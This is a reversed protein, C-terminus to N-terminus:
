SSGVFCGLVLSFDDPISGAMNAWNLVKPLINAAFPHLGLRKLLIMPRAVHNFFLSRILHIIPLNEAEARPMQQYVGEGM